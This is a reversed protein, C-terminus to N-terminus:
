NKKMGAWPPFLSINVRHDRPGRYNIIMVLHLWVLLMGDISATMVRGSWFVWLLWGFAGFFTALLIPPILAPFVSRSLCDSCSSSRRSSGSGHFGSADSIKGLSRIILITWVGTFLYGFTEGVITGLITNLLQFTAVDGMKALGPVILIWRSLGIVQVAAALVGIWVAM